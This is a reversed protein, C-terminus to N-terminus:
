CTISPLGGKGGDSRPLARELASRFQGFEVLAAVRELGDGKALLERLRGALDFFGPQDVM